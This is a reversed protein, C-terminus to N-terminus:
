QMWCNLRSQNKLFVGPNYYPSCRHGQYCAKLYRCGVCDPIDRESIILPRRFELMEPAFSYIETLSQEWVNGCVADWLIECPTVGGEPRICASGMSAGCPNIVIPFTQIDDISSGHIINYQDTVSGIVFNGWKEQAAKVNALAEYKQAPTMRIDMSYHEANGGYHVDNFRIKFVNLEKALDAISVIDRFNFQTVTCSLYIQHGAEVLHQIGHLNKEFSGRGRIPDQVNSASGDLSVTFLMIGAKKAERAFAEDVLTANTNVKVHIKHFRMISVIDFFDDRVLPEGGFLSLSQCGLKKMEEALESIKELPFEDKRGLTSGALCHKCRLNCRNTIGFTVNKLPPVGTALLHDNETEVISGSQLHDIFHTVDALATVFDIDEFVSMMNKAIVSPSHGQLLSECIFKSSDNLEFALHTYADLLYSGSDKSEIKIRNADLLVSM